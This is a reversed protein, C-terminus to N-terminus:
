PKITVLTMEGGYGGDEMSSSPQSISPRVFALLRSSYARPKDRPRRKREKGDGAFFLLWDRQSTNATRTCTRRRSLTSPVSQSGGLPAVSQSVITRRSTLAVQSVVVQLATCSTQVYEQRGVCKGRVPVSMISHAGRDVSSRLGAMHIHTGYDITM